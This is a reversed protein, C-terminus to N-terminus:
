AHGDGRLVNAKASYPRLNALAWCKKFNPHDMSDYPLKSQPIIHDMQWTWTSADNDDWRDKIYPGHNSWNMWSEFSAELHIKLEDSTYDLYDFVSSGGKSAGVKKLALRVMHAVKKRLMQKPNAKVWEQQRAQIRRRNKEYYARDQLHKKRRNEPKSYHRDREAATKDPNEERYRRKYENVRERNEIKWQRSEALIKERNNHRYRAKAEKVAQARCGPCYVTRIDVEEPLDQGCRCCKSKSRVIM